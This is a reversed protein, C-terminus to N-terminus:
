CRPNVWGWQPWHYGLREGQEVGFSIDNLAFFVEKVPSTNKAAMRSPFSFLKRTKKSVEERLTNYRGIAEHGIIFQKSIQEATIIQAAM